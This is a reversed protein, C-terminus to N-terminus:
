LKTSPSPIGNDIKRGALRMRRRADGFSEGCNRRFLIGGTAIPSHLFGGSRYAFFQRADVRSELALTTTQESGLGANKLSKSVM